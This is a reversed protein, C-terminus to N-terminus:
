TVNMDQCGQDTTSLAPRAWDVWEDYYSAEGKRGEKRGECYPFLFYPGALCAPLCTGTPRPPRRRRRAVVTFFTAGNKLFSTGCRFPKYPFRALSRAYLM